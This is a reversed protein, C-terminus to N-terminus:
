ALYGGDIALTQGTTNPATAFYLAAEGMDESLQATKMPILDEITNQFTTLKDNGTGESFKTALRDWIETWVIGPAICNATIHHPALEGALSRTLGVIAFKSTSYAALGPFGKQGAISSLNIICGAHPRAACAEEFTKYKEKLAESREKMHPIVAKCLIFQSRVNVDMIKEYDAVDHTEMMGPPPGEIGANNVLIDIRGHSKLVGDVLDNGTKEDSVDAIVFTCNDGILECTERLFSERRGCIIVKAGNDAFVKAIARGIGTGGGTVLAVKGDLRSM